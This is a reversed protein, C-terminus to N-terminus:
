AAGGYASLCSGTVRERPLPPLLHEPGDCDGRSLHISSLPCSPELLPRGAPSVFFYYNSPGPLFGLLRSSRVWATHSWNAILLDVGQEVLYESGAALLAPVNEPRGFGDVLTGVHLDGFYANGQMPSRIVVIWGLEEDAGKRRVRLRVFRPDEPPYLINLTTSDRRVLAGYETRAGAFIQDAWDGFCPEARSEYEPVAPNIRRWLALGGGLLRGFGSAALVRAALQLSRRRRLYALDRLVQTPRVPYFLFPVAAHSWGLKSVFQAWAEELSGVGLCMQFPQDALASRTLLVIPMSYRRDVLGESLPLQAWCFSREQGNVFVTSSYQLMGARIEEGEEVVLLRRGVPFGDPRHRAEGPLRPDLPLQYYQGGKKLRENFREVAPEDRSDAARVRLRPAACETTGNM